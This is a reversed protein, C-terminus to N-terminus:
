RGLPSRVARVLAPPLLFGGDPESHLPVEALVADATIAGYLHPFREVTGTGAEWVVAAGLLHADLVVAVLDDRGRYFRNAPTLLQPLSSLHIFGDRDWERPLYSGSPGVAEWVERETLHVLRAPRADWGAAIRAVLSEREDDPLFAAVAAREACAALEVRTFGHHAAALEFERRASTTTIARDDPHLTIRFGADFLLRVPHDEVRLGLCANSTLCIELPIGGDRVAAATPGLRTIRGDTVECDDILRWGHGLRDPRCHDLASAVQHVGDMEGAHVTRALGHDAAFVFAARHGQAPNGVEGGALDLGVVREGMWRVAVEAAEVSVEEPLHRMACVILRADCGLDAADDIGAHVAAMVEDATLGGAVHNLPAFRLEAHVVGDAALDEVAERAIRRLAAETQTAGIVLHFRSFAEEFPMGPTITLWRALEAEDDTPTAIGAEHALALTTASRVGGDLHDHLVVLPGSAATM